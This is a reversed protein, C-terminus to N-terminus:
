SDRANVPILNATPNPPAAPPLHRHPSKQSALLFSSVWHRDWVTQQSVYKSGLCTHILKRQEEGDVTVQVNVFLACEKNYQMSSQTHILVFILPDIWASSLRLLSQYHLWLHRGWPKVVYAVVERFCGWNKGKNMRIKIWTGTYRESLQCGCSAINWSYRKFSLM